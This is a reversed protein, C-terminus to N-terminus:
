LPGRPVDGVNPYISVRKSPSTQSPPRTANPGVINLHNQLHQTSLFTHSTWLSLVLAGLRHIREYYVDRGLGAQIGDFLKRKVYEREM